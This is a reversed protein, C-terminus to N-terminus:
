GLCFDEDKWSRPHRVLFSAPTSAYAPWRRFVGVGHCRQAGVVEHVTTPAAPCDMAAPQVWPEGNKDAVAVWGEVVIPEDVATARRRCTSMTEFTMVKYWRFGSDGVPGDVVYLKTGPQLLPELVLHGTATEPETRVRLLEDTM